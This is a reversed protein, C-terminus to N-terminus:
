TESKAKLEFSISLARAMWSKRSPLVLQFAIKQTSMIRRKRHYSVRHTRYCKLRTKLNTSILQIKLGVCCSPLRQLIKRYSKSLDSHNASSAKTTTRKNSLDAIAEYVSENILAMQNLTATWLKHGSEHTRMRGGSLGGSSKAAKMLRQEISLYSWEHENYRVTHLGVVKFTKVLASFRLYPLRSLISGYLKPISVEVQQQLSLCCRLWLQLICNSTM